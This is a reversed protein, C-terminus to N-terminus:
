TWGPRPKFEHGGSWSLVNWTVSVGAIVVLGDTVGYEAWWKREKTYYYVSLINWRGITFASSVDNLPYM